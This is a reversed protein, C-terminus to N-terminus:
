KFGIQIKNQKAVSDSKSLNPRWRPSYMQQSHSNLRHSSIQVNFLECKVQNFCGVNVHNKKKKKILIKKRFKIRNESQIQDPRTKILIQGSNGSKIQTLFRIM